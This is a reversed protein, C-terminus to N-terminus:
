SFNPLKAWNSLGWTIKVISNLSKYSQSCELLIKIAEVIFPEAQFAPCFSMYGILKILGLRFLSNSKLSDLNPFDIKSLQIKTHRIENNKEKTANKM